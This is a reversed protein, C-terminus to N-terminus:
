KVLRPVDLDLPQDSYIYDSNTSVMTGDTTFFFNGDENPGYSGDDTPASVVNPCVSGSCSDIILDSTTMQSSNSSVKGKIVYYGLIKGFSILYLYGIKDEKSFRKHREALNARETTPGKLEEPVPIAKEQASFLEETKAQGREQANGESGPECASLAIIGLIISLAVFLKKM